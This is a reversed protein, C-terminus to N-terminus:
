AAVAPGLITERNVPDENVETLEAPLDEHETTIIQQDPRHGEEDQRSPETEAQHRKITDM